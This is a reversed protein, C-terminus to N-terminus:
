AGGEKEPTISLAAIASRMRKRDYFGGGCQEVAVATLRELMDRQGRGYEAKIADLIPEHEHGRHGTLHANIVAVAIERAREEITDTM